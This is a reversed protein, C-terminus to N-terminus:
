LYETAEKFRLKGQRFFLSTHNLHGRFLKQTKWDWLTLLTM